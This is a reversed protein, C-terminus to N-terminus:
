KIKGSLAAFFIEGVQTFDEVTWDAYKECGPQLAAFTEEKNCLAWAEWSIKEKNLFSVFERGQKLASENGKEVNIGWESVFVAVGCRRCDAIIDSYEDGYQGAYFHYSYMVNEFPLPSEIVKTISYSYDPTGVLILADPAYTRIVPIVQGAYAAIEEWTTDGNPENCIEYVLGPANGYHSAITEFFEIAAQTNKEPTEESLVHWDVIAYMDAALANEIAGYMLKLSMDPQQVYGGSVDDAYMAIRFSNAGYARTSLLSSYSTYEPYWLLGHSSMGRLQVEEGKEDVLTTGSLKLRGHTSVGDAFIINKEELDEYVSLKQEKQTQEGKINVIYLYEAVSMLAFAFVLILLILVTRKKGKSKM